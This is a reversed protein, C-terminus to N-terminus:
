AMNTWECVCRDIELLFFSFSIFFIINTIRDVKKVSRRIKTRNILINIESIYFFLIVSVFRAFTSPFYSSSANLELENITTKKCFLELAYYFISLTFNLNIEDVSQSQTYSMIKPQTMELILYFFIIRHHFAPIKHTISFKLTKKQTSQFQNRYWWKNVSRLLLTNNVNLEQQCQTKFFSSNKENIVNSVEVYREDNKCATSSINQAIIPMMIYTEDM